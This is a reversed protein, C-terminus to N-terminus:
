WSLLASEITSGPGMTIMVGYDGPSVLEENVLRQYSFLFSGSSLNGHNRLVTMTHRLDYASLGLNVKIADIVKKGGSHVLWHKVDSRRVGTESLLGDINREINAGIVYPIDRDLFFSFKGQSDDWDYRMAQAAEPIILSRFKLIAPQPFRTPSETAMIAVAAAGDGFLSNVVATRMTGDFVYAASCIEVCLMIAIRGPNSLAWTATAQLANLGANCGMGVVDLRTCETACGLKCSLLGSLGPSLFGTSTVCCLYSVDFNSVSLNKLCLEIARGGIELACVRHKQLLEGQTEELPTGDERLGPLTLQRHEISGNLFLSRARRDTVRFIDLLELQSYSTPPLATGVSAIVPILRNTCSLSIPHSWLQPQHHFKNLECRRQIQM